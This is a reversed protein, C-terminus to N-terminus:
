LKVLAKTEISKLIRAITNWNRTTIKRGFEKELFAMLDTTQGHPSITIVSCAETDSVRLIKFDGEPSEHPIKLRLKAKERLFTVYFRIQPTIKLNKFPNTEALKQLEPISRLQVGIEHGFAAKLKEEIRAVHAEADGAATEFLVNGSALLTKVEKHGLSTFASRLKEMRVLKHGGVNIGRLFAVYKM